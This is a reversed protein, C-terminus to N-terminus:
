RGDREESTRPRTAGALNEPAADSRVELGERMEAVFAGATPFRDARDKALARDVALAVREPIEKLVKHASPPVSQPSSGKKNPILSFPLVIALLLAVAIGVRLARRRFRPSRLLRM